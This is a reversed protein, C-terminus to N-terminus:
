NGIRLTLLYVDDDELEEVRNRFFETVYMIDEADVVSPFYESHNTRVDGSVVMALILIFSELDDRGNIEVCWLEEPLTFPRYSRVEAMKHRNQLITVAKEIQPLQVPVLTPEISTM